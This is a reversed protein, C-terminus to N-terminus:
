SGSQIFILPTDVRTADQQMMKVEDKKSKLLFQPTEPFYLIALLYAISIGLGIYPIQHYQMYNGALFSILFGANACLMM